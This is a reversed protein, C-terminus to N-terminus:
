KSALFVSFSSYNEFKKLGSLRADDCSFITSWRGCRDIVTRFFVVAGGLFREQFRCLGRM